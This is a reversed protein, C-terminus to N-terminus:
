VLPNIIVYETRQSVNGKMNLSKIVNKMYQPHGNQAFSWGPVGGSVGWCYYINSFITGIAESILEIFLLPTEKCKFHM